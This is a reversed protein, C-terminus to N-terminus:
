ATKMGFDLAMGCGLMMKNELENIKIKLCEIESRKVQLDLVLQANMAQALMKVLYDNDM